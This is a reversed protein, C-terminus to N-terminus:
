TSGWRLRMDGSPYDTGMEEGWCALSGGSGLCAVKAHAVSGKWPDHTQPIAKVGEGGTEWGLRGVWGVPGSTRQTEHVFPGAFPVAGSGGYRMWEASKEGKEGGSNKRTESCLLQRLHEPHPCEAAGGEAHTM